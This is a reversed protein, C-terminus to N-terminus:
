TSNNLFFVIIIAILISFPLVQLATAKSHAQMENSYGNSSEFVNVSNDVKLDFNVLQLLTEKTQFDLLESHNELLANASKPTLYKM